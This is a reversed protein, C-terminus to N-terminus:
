KKVEGETERWYEAGYDWFTDEGIHIDRLCRAIFPIEWGAATKKTDNSVNKAGEPGAGQPAHNIYACICSSFVM